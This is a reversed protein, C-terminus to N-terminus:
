SYVTVHTKTLMIWNKKADRSYGHLWALCDELELYHWAEELFESKCTKLSILHLLKEIACQGGKFKM